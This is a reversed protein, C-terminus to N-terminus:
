FQMADSGHLTYAGAVSAPGPVTGDFSSGNLTTDHADIVGGDGWDEFALGGPATDVQNNGPSDATGLDVTAFGGGLSLGIRQASVHSNRMQLHGHDLVAAEDIGVNGVEM